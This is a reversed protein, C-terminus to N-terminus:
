APCVQTASSRGPWPSLSPLALQEAEELQTRLCRVGSALAMRTDVHGHANSPPPHLALMRSRRVQVDQRIASGDNGDRTSGVGANRPLGAEDLLQADSRLAAIADPAVWNRVVCFGRVHLHELASTPVPPPTRLLSLVAAHPQASAATLMARREVEVLAEM